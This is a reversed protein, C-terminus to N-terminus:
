PNELDGTAEDTGRPGVVGVVVLEKAGKEAGSM